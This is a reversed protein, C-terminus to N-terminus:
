ALEATKGRCGRRRRNAPRTRRLIQLLTTKGSGSVGLLAIMEGRTVSFSIDKLVEFTGAKDDFTRKIHQVEIM